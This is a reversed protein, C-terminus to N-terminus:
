NRFKANKNCIREIDAASLKDRNGCSRKIADFDCSSLFKYAYDQGRDDRDHKINAVSWYAGGLFNRLQSINAEKDGLVDSDCALSQAEKFMNVMGADNVKNLCVQDNTSACEAYGICQESNGMMNQHYAPLAIITNKDELGASILTSIARRQFRGPSYQGSMLHIVSKCPTKLDKDKYIPQHAQFSIFDAKEILVDGVIKKDDFGKPSLTVGIEVSPLKSRVASILSSAAENKSQIGSQVPQPANELGKADVFADDWNEEDEFEIGKIIQSNRNHRKVFDILNWLTSGNKNKKLNIFVSNPTPWVTLYVPIKAKGLADVFLGLPERKQEDPLWQDFAFFHSKGLCSKETASNQKMLRGRERLQAIGTRSPAGCQKTVPEGYAQKQCECRAIKDFQGNVVIHVQNVHFSKYKKIEYDINDVDIGASDYWIARVYSKGGIAGAESLDTQLVALALPLVAFRSMLLILAPLTKSHHKM